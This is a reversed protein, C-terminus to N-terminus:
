PLVYDIGAVPFPDKRRARRARRAIELAVLALAELHDPDPGVPERMRPLGSAASGLGGNGWLPHPHGLRRSVKHACHAMDILRALLAPRESAPLLALVGAVDLLDALLVTRM